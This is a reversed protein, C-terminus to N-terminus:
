LNDGVEFNEDQGFSLVVKWTNWYIFVYSVYNVLIIDKYLIQETAELLYLKDHHLFKILNNILFNNLM